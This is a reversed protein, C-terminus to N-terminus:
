YKYWDGKVVYKDYEYMLKHLMGHSNYLKLEIEYWRGKIVDKCYNVIIDPEICGLTMNCRKIIQNELDIWRGKLVYQAYKTGVRDDNLISKELHPLRGINHAICYEVVPGATHYDVNKLKDINKRLEPWGGPFFAISYRVASFMNSLIMNEVSSRTYVDEVWRSKLVDICYDVTADPLSLINEEVEKWRGKIIHRAYKIIYTAVFASESKESILLEELAPMRTKIFIITYDVGTRAYSLIFNEIGAADPGIEDELLIWRGKICHVAYDLALQPYNVDDSIPQKYADLLYKEVAPVREKIYKTAYNVIHEIEYENRYKHIQDFLKREAFEPLRGKVVLDAYNFVDTPEAIDMIRQGLVSDDGEVVYALYRYIEHTLLHEAERWRDHLIRLCYYLIDNTVDIGWRSANMGDALYAEYSLILPEVERWRMDLNHKIYSIAASRGTAIIPEADEWRRGPFFEKAYEAAPKAGKLIYPEAAEWRRKMVNISYWSAAKADYMFNEDVYSDGILEAWKKGGAIENSYRIAWYMDKAIYPEAEPWRKRTSLAYSFALPLDQKIVEMGAPWQVGGLALIYSLIADKYGKKLIKDEYRKFLQSIVPHENRFYALRAGGIYSDQEDRFEGEEFQFQFKKSGGLIDKKEVYQRDIWIYLPGYSTYKTFMGPTKGATCWKTGSGVECSGKHTIPIALTGLPGDYLIKKDKDERIVKTIDIGTKFTEEIFAKLRPYNFSNIDKDRGTFRNKNKHFTAMISKVTDIDELTYEGRQYAKVLWDMYVCLHESPDAKRIVKIQEDLTPYRDVVDYCRKADFKSM